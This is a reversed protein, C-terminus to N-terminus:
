GPIWFGMTWDSGNGSMDFYILQFIYVYCLLEPENAQIQGKHITAGYIGFNDPTMPSRM